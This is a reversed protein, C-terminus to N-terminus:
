PKGMRFVKTQCVSCIGQTALRGNKFTVQEPDKIEQKGRCKFCYSEM